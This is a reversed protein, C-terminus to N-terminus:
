KKSKVELMHTPRNLVKIKDSIGHGPIWLVENKFCLLSINYRDEKLIKKNILYNKLKMTKKLGLPQFVDFPKRFRLSFYKNKYKSLDVYAKMEKDLPFAKIFHKKIFPKAVLTENPKLPIAIPKNNISFDQTVYIKNNQSAKHNQLELTIKNKDTTLYYMKSLSIRKLNKISDLITDTKTVSGQINNTVLFWYLFSKQTYYDLKLFKNKDIVLPLDTRTSLKIKKLLTVFYNELVKNESYVLDSCLLLNNSANKNIRSFLPLIKLRILNRKYKLDDNTKDKIFKIKNKIAYDNIEKKTIDLFPRFLLTKDTLPLTEKIPLLGNPGTGRALRFLITEIQDDKHHATCVYNFSHYISAEKFFDYRKERANEESKIIKGTAEKYIFIINNKRCFDKVLLSDKYSDDRWKHNYHLAYLTLKYFKRLKLFADLLVMSDIGGSIALAVKKNFLFSHNKLKNISIQNM